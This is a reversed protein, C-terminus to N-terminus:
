SAQPAAKAKAKGAFVLKINFSLPYFHSLIPISFYLISTPLSFSTEEIRKMWKLRCKQVEFDVKIVGEEQSIKIIMMFSSSFIGSLFSSPFSFFFIQKQICVPDYALRSNLEGM